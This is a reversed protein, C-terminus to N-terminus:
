PLISKIKSIWNLVNEIKSSFRSEMYAIGAPLLLSDIVMGSAFQCSILNHKDLEACIASIDEVSYESVINNYIEEASGLYRARSQSLGSDLKALYHAYIECILCDADRTLKM